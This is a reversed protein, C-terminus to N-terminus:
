ARRRRRFCLAGLALGALAITSPEPVVEFDVTTTAGGVLTVNFDDLYGDFGSAWGSGTELVFAMIPSEDYDFTATSSSTPYASWDVVGSAGNIVDLTPGGYFGFNTTNSDHMTLQNTGADTSYTNWQNAPNSFNNAYLGEWTMRLGYWGSGNNNTSNPAAPPTTYVTLYWDPASGGTTSKFTSFSMSEIDALTTTPSFGLSAPTFGISSKTAGNAQWSGSGIKSQATSPVAATTGSAAAFAGADTVTLTAANAATAVVLTLALSYALSRIM